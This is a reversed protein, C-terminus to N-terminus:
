YGATFDLCYPNLQNKNIYFSWKIQPNKRDEKDLVIVCDCTHVSLAPLFVPVMLRRSPSGLAQEQGQTQQEMGIKDRASLIYTCDTPAVWCFLGLLAILSAWDGFARSFCGILPSCAVHVSVSFLAIAMFMRTGRESGPHPLNFKHSTYEMSHSWSCVVHKEHWIIPWAHSSHVWPM